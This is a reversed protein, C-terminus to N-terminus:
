VEEQLESSFLLEKSVEELELLSSQLQIAEQQVL